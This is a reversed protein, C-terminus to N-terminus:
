INEAFWARIQGILDGRANTYAHDAKPIVRITHNSMSAVCSSLLQDCDRFSARHGGVEAEGFCWLSRVHISKAMEVYDYPEERGYKDLFTAASILMPQPFRISLLSESKGQQVLQTARELDERFQESYKIDSSLVSPVLRPPSLCILAHIAVNSRAVIVSKVAGLSHGLLGIKQYGLNRSYGIWAALDLQCDEIMEYAAGVRTRGGPTAFYAIPDRGRTNVRLVDCGSELLFETVSALLSSDYFNGAVGHVVIWVIKRSPYTSAIESSLPDDGTTQLFGNLRLGDGTQTEVIWGPRQM